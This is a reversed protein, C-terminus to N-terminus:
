DDRPRKGDSFLMRLENTYDIGIEVDRVECDLVHGGAMADATIAHFHFGAVNVKALVPPLWFGALTADVEEFAFIVQQELAQALPVYPKQQAPVSRTTLRKFHGKVRIAYLLRKSPFRKTLTEQLEACDKTDRISFVDDAKFFTVAAFPTQQDNSVPRAIGDDRVQYFKGDVAVMEGDLKAFTGLGFDGQRKVERFRTIGDYDGALLAILPSVQFLTDQKNGAQAYACFGNTLLVVLAIHIPKMLM